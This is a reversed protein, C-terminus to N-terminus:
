EPVLEPYVLAALPEGPLLADMLTSLGVRVPGHSRGPDQIWGQRGDGGVLVVAHPQPFGRWSPYLRGLEVFLIPPVGRRLAQGLTRLWREEWRYALQHGSGAFRRNLAVTGDRFLQLDEPFEVHLGNGRLLELRRGPTGRLEDTRLVLALAAPDAAHGYHRLVMSVCHPVSGSVQEQAEHPVPLRSPALYAGAVGARLREERSPHVPERYRIYERRVGPRIRFPESM